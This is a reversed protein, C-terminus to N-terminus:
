NFYRGMGNASLTRGTGREWHVVGRFYSIRFGRTHYLHVFFTCFIYMHVESKTNFFESRPSFVARIFFLTLKVNPRVQMCKINKICVKKKKRWRWNLIKKMWCWQLFALGPLCRQCKSHQFLSSSAILNSCDPCRSVKQFTDCNQRKSVQQHFTEM